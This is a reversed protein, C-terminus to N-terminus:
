TLRVSGSTLEERPQLTQPSNGFKPDSLIQQAASVAVGALSGATGYTYALDGGLAETDSGDLSFSALANTLAWRSVGHWRSGRASDFAQVLKGFDFTEVADDTLKGDGSMGETVLQLTSVAQYNRGRYWDDFTISGGGGTQLILDDGSRRFVLDSLRIGAGLSLTGHAHGSAIIRDDGDGRNYAIIDNGGGLRITDDGKGGIFLQNGSNGTLRDDGRGGDLLGNGSSDEIRDRGRGGQLIDVGSGGSLFDRGRGGDAYDNGADGYIRDRGRRGYLTDNGSGGRILDDGAGGDITYDGPGNAVLVDRRRGGRLVPDPAPDSLPAAAVDLVFTDAASAGSGDTAVVQLQLSAAADPTGSLTRTDPNFSLWSPLASGDAMRVSYSLNDGADVDRFADGAITMSFAQGATASQDAIPQMLEPADNTNAVTIDFTDVASLGGGDRATMRVSLTGVEGNTPTGSFTRTAADFSLWTPLASGDALTASLTLSDGADVDAFTGAPLAFSFPMDETATQDAVPSALTPADNVNNVTISFTQQASAGASDTGTLTISYTGVEANSPVGTLVRNQADYTLWAPAEVSVTVSDGADIDGFVESVDISVASDEDVTQDAVPAIVMPADNVNNVTINFVQQATAGSGDAATLTVSYSGVEGNGPMGSLEGTQADYTLWEPGAVSLTLSDGADADGFVGALSLSFASDEDVSQDGVPNVATPADNVNTVTLNFTQSASASGDSATITISLTGVQADDPTGSFALTQSNFQLWTPLGSGDALTAMYSLADGDPDSFAGAPLAFSISDGEQFTQDSLTTGAIPDQNAASAGGLVDGTTAYNIAYEGGAAPVTGTIEGSGTGFLPIPADVTAGFLAAENVQVLSALDFVRVNGSADVFQVRSVAQDERAVFTGTGTTDMYWNLLIQDTTGQVFLILTGWQDIYAMVNEPTIGGGFSITDADGNVPGPANDVFLAGDGANFLYVDNGDGGSAFAGDPGAAIVDDGADGFVLDMGSGGSVVDNGAGAYIGDDGGRGDIVDDGDNGYIQDGALSGELADSGQSGEQFGAVGDDTQALVTELSATTGDDFQFVIQTPPAEGSAGVSVDPQVMTFVLGDQGKVTVSFISPTGFSSPASAQVTIDALTIGPGFQIVNTVPANIWDVLASFAAQADAASV